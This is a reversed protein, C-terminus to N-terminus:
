PRGARARRPRSTACREVLEAGLRRGLDGRGLSLSQLALQCPLHLGNGSEGDQARPHVSRSARNGVRPWARRQSGARGALPGARCGTGIDHVSIPTRLPQPGHDLLACHTCRRCRGFCPLQLPVQADEVGHHDPQPRHDTRPDEGREGRGRRRGTGSQQQAQGQGCHHRVAVGGGGGTQGGAVGLRSTRVDIAALAEPVEPSIQYPQPKTTPM